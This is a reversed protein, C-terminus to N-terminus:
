LIPVRIKKLKICQFLKTNLFHISANKLTGLLQM